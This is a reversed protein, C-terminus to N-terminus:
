LLGEKRLFLAVDKLKPFTLTPNSARAKKLIRFNHTKRLTTLKINLKEALERHKLNPNEIITELILLETPKYPLTKDEKVADKNIQFVESNVNESVTRENLSVRFDLSDSVDYERLLVYHNLYSLILGSADIQFPYLTRKFLLYSGDAHKLPIQVIIRHKMFALDYNGSNAVSLSSSALKNLSGAHAPHLVSFYKYLDFQSSNYGLWDEVGHVNEIKKEALNVSFFFQEYNICTKLKRIEEEQRLKSILPKYVVGSPYKSELFERVNKLYEIPSSKNM